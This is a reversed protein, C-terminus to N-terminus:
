PQGYKERPLAVEQQQTSYTWNFIASLMESPKIVNKRPFTTYTVYIVYV